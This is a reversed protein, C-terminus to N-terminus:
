HVTIIYKSSNMMLVFICVQESNVLLTLSAAMRDYTAGSSGRM